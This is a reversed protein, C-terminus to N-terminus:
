RAALGELLDRYSDLPAVVLDLVKGRDDWRRLAVADHHGPRREFATVKGADLPGGQRQLSRTSGASLGGHYAPDTACLYRKAAVHLAIPATVAPPFLRALYRAGLAEHALDVTADGDARSAERAPDDGEDGGPRAAEIELLHGVDHLLAAAVLADGAGDAVALAACQLGHDLQSLDEDYHDAGFREFLGLVEDV